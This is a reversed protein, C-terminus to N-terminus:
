EGGGKRDPFQAYGLLGGALNCVWANAFSDPDWPDVGGTDASKVSDDIFFETVDTQTRTIGSTSNGEPDESALAFRINTDGILGQWVSPVNSTNPNTGSYDQNLVSIQSEIQEDSINESEDNYVVHVVVPITIPEDPILAGPGAAMREGTEVGVGRQGRGCGPHAEGARYDPADPTLAEPGAAMREATEIETERQGPRYEPHSEVALYYAAAAGCMRRSPGAQEDM